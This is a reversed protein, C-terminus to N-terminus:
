LPAGEVFWGSLRNCDLAIICNCFRDNRTEADQPVNRAPEMGNQSIAYVGLPYVRLIAHARRFFPTTNSSTIYPKGALNQGRNEFLTDSSWFKCHQRRNLTRVDCNLFHLLIWLPKPVSLPSTSPLHLSSRRLVAFSQFRGPIRTPVMLM